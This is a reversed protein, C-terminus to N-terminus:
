KEGRPQKSEVKPMFEELEAFSLHCCKLMSLQLSVSLQSYDYNHLSWLLHPQLLMWQFLSREYFGLSRRGESEWAGALLIERLCSELRM